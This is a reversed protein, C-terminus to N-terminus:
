SEGLLAFLEERSEPIYVNDFIKTVKDFYEEYDCKENFSDGALKTLFIIRCSSNFLLKASVCATSYYSILTKGEMAGGAVALEFPCDDRYVKIQGHFDDHTGRPHPKIVMNDYGVQHMIELPLRRYTEPNKTVNETGQGLFVYKEEFARSEFQLIRRAQKTVAEMERSGKEIKIKEFQVDAEALYPEFLYLEKEQKSSDFGLILRYLKRGLPTSVLHEPSKTYSAFGDEFRHFRVRKNQKILTKGLEKVIEDPMGPSAFFVDDYTDLRCPFLTELEGTQKETQLATDEKRLKQRTVIQRTTANYIFSEFLTVFANKYPNKIKRGDAFYVNTFYPAFAGREFLEEMYPTKDTVALDIQDYEKLVTEKLFLFVLLHYNTSVIGLVKKMSHEMRDDTLRNNYFYECHRLYEQQEMEFLEFMEDM